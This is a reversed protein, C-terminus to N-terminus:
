ASQQTDDNVGGMVTTALLELLIDITGDIEQEVSDDGVIEATLNILM